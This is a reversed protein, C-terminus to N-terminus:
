QDGTNTSPLQRDDGWFIRAAGRGGSYLQDPNSPGQCGGGGFIGGERGGSVNLYAPPHGYQFIPNAPAYASPRTKTHYGFSGSMGYLITGIAPPGLSPVVPHSVFGNPTTNWGISNRDQSIDASDRYSDTAPIPTAALFDAPSAPTVQGAPPMNSGTSSGWIGVGGGGGGASPTKSSGDGAGGKGFEQRVIFNPIDSPPSNPPFTAAHSTGRGGNGTYGGAGAGGAITPATVDWRADGGNGGGVFSNDPKLGLSTGRGGFLLLEPAPNPLGGPATTGVSGAGGIAELVTTGGQVIKSPTGPSGGRAPVLPAPIPAPHPTAIGGTGVEITIEEGPTVPLDQIWRLGGGAGNGRGYQNPTGPGFGGAGGGGVVVASIKTVYNPVTFTYSGSTTYEAQSRQCVYITKSISSSSTNAFVTVQNYGVTSATGSITGNSSNITISGPLGTASYTITLNSASNAGGFNLLTGRKIKLTPQLNNNVWVTQGDRIVHEDVSEQWTLDPGTGGEGPAPSPTSPAPETVLTKESLILSSVKKIAM